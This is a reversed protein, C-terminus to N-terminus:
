QFVVEEATVLKVPGLLGSELLPDDKKYTKWVSFTTREGLKIENQIFWDPLKEINNNTTYKNEEPLYEDGILRNPWLTTVLIELQNDGLKVAKTIDIMFPEKWLIGLKQGNLKVEAVVEVRGLHLFLKKAPQIDEKGIGIMKTYTAMGSFHRVTFDTHKHLSMLQPLTIQSPMGKGSPFGVKWSGNINVNKCSTINGIERIGSNNKLQYHGNGFVLVNLHNNGRKELTIDSPLLPQPLGDAYIKSIDGASLVTKYLKPSTHNGEFYSAFQELSAPTDLGPHVTLGSGNNSAVLKGNLYLSPKGDSYVVVMNTWGEIPHGYFLVEKATGDGREYIRVGNQGASLGMAVHGAGYVQEGIPPHFLMSKAKHAYTDPKAWLSISFNDKVDSYKAPNIAPFPKTSIIEKGDKLIATYGRLNESFQRFVIFLSGAETLTMPMTFGAVTQEYIFPQYVNGSEGDWIEPQKGKIRFTAVITEPRRRHNSIFYIDTDGMTKHIYHIAADQKEATYAFDPKIANDALIRDLSKGWIVKGKGFAKETIENGGKPAIPFFGDAISKITEDTAARGLAKTPKTTVILTMGAAVLEKLLTLSTISISQLPAMMCVRYTMGDPLVILNDKITFRHLGELSVVDGAYGQPLLKYIDPVGSEPNDGKFYCVDAVFLGKQLLDQSRKLYDTWGYAQNTWTNNRDIHIGFPGMTMGPKASTYPQHVFTHFVLRNIGLTFFYDGEAKLSYPYDTWKATAPMATFAEAAAIPKGYIHAASTAQKSYNDSGYIYRSWFEAMPVDLHEAVQLSDFNGDGYPEAAYNLGRDHCLKAFHGSYNGALLDAQTKRVDWLFRETEDTSKVVRGTLAPMWQVISYGRKDLFDKPFSVTWNQKGAEWSDSTLGVFSKGVFPKAKTILKDLFNAFHSELAARNFKDIELGKGADPHAACEEGTTTHGMRLITWNGALVDWSLNGDSDMKDSIDIVTVPDILLDNTLTPTAGGSDGHTYGTKGSWGALRPGNHLEVNCVWSSSNAILRYYRATVSPFSFTVPTDMERMEPCHFSGIERYVNGDNSYQLRFVPPRDRPGDFLDEPTEPKRLITISQSQYAEKFEFDLVGEKGEVELRIKTEPSGDTLIGKDIEKGNATIRVIRDKMLAKEVSLSQYAIVFADKYYGLKEYPKPLRIKRNRNEERLLTETWSLQQMSLEPMVWPGGTGSYGPSNHLSVKIGLREAESFTHLTADMWEDSAYDIKGRPIGVAVNFLIVGGIGINKMAELDLTIGEKTINGNMWMYFCWPRAEDPPFKFNQKLTEIDITDSENLSTNLWSAKTLSPLMMVGASTTIVNRLFSRRHM